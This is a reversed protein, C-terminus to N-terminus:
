CRIMIRRRMLDLFAQFMNISKEVETLTHNDDDATVEKASGKVTDENKEANSLEVM